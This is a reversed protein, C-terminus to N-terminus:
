SCRWDPKRKELFAAPGEKADDTRLVRERFAEALVEAEALPLDIGRRIALRTGRVLVAVKKRKDPSDWLPTDIAARLEDVPVSVSKEKGSTVSANWRKAAAMFIPSPMAIWETPM